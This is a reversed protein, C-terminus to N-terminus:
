IEFSPYLMNPDTREWVCSKLYQVTVNNSHSYSQWRSLIDAYINKIGEIHKVELQVNYLATFYWVNRVYTMLWPDRIKHFTFANVVAANDCWIIVKSDKWLKAWLKFTVLINVAELHVISAIIQIPEPIETAYVKGEFYGGVM